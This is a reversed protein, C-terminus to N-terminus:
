YKSKEILRTFMMKCRKTVHWHVPKLELQERASMEISQIIEAVSKNKAFVTVWSAMGISEPAGSARFFCDKIKLGDESLRIWFYISDGSDRDFWRIQEFDTEDKGSWVNSPNNFHALLVSSYKINYSNM